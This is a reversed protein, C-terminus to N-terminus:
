INRHLNDIQAIDFIQTDVIELSYLNGAIEAQFYNDVDAIIQHEYNKLSKICKKMVFKASAMDKSPTVNFKGDFYEKVMLM